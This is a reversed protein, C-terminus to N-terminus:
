RCYYVKEGKLEGIERKLNSIRSMLIEKTFKHCAMDLSTCMLESAVINAPNIRSLSFMTNFIVIDDITFKNFISPVEDALAKEAGTVWEAYTNSVNLCRLVLNRIEPLLKEYYSIEYQSVWNSLWKHMPTTALTELNNIISGKMQAFTVGGETELTGVRDHVDKHALSCSLFDVDSTGINSCHLLTPVNWTKDIFRNEFPAVKNVMVELAKELVNLQGEKHSIIHNIKEQAKSKFM